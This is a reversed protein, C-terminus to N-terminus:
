LAKRVSVGISKIYHKIEESKRNLCILIWIIENTMIEISM